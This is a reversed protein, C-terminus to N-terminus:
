SARAGAPDATIRECLIDLEGAQLASRYRFRRLKGSTTKAVTRQPILLIRDLLLQHEDSIREFIRECLAARAEPAMTRRGTAALCLEGMIEGAAPEARFVVCDSVLADPGEAVSREIDHPQYV